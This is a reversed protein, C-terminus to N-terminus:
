WSFDGGAQASESVANEWRKVSSKIKKLQTKLQEASQLQDLAGFVSTLLKLERESVQGLAGGTKSAERMATLAGFGINGKLTDLQAAFSRAESEPLRKKFFASWGTTNSNVQPLLEEVAQLTREATEQMYESPEEEGGEKEKEKGQWEAFTMGTSAGGALRYNKFDTTLEVEETTTPKKYIKGTIPDTFLQDDKYSGSQEKTLPVFGNLALEREYEAQQAMRDAQSQEIDGKQVLANLQFQANELYADATNQVISQATVLDNKLIAEQTLLNNYNNQSIMLDIKQEESLESQQAQILGLPIGRGQGELAMLEKQDLLAQNAIQTRADSIELGIDTLAKQKEQIRQEEIAKEEATQIGAPIGALLDQIQSAVSRTAPTEEETVEKVTEPKETIVEEAKREAIGFGTLQEGVGFRNVVDAITGGQQLEEPTAARGRALKAVGQIFAENAGATGGFKDFTSQVNGLLEQRNVIQPEPPAVQELAPEPPGVPTTAVDQTPEPQEVTNIKEEERSAGTVIDMIPDSKVLRGSADLAFPKEAM